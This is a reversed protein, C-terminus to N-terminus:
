RAKFLTTIETTALARRYVRFDDIAGSFYPDATFQSKGLSNIVTPGLDGPHVTLATNTGVLAGDVYLFGTYPSGEPLVVAMHHWTGVSLVVGTGTISQEVGGRRILFRPNDSQNHTTLAFSDATSNGLDFVRQWHQDATVYVWASITVAQPALDALSPLLVEGGGATGNGTLSVAYTGIQHTLTFAVGGGTGATTLMGNRPGGAAASWDMATTGAGDDFTYWLVLDADPRGGAGGGGSTGATGAAGAQDASHGGGGPAGGAAGTGASGSEGGGALGGGGSGLVFGGGKGSAGAHAGGSGIAGGTPAAGAGGRGTGGTGQGGSGDAAAGGTASAGGSGSGETDPDSGGTGTGGLAGGSGPTAGSGDKSRGNLAEYDYRCGALCGLMLAWALRRRM